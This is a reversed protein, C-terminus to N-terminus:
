PAGALLARKLDPDVPRHGLWIRLLARYLEQGPVAKGVPQGNMIVQSGKDPLYDLAVTDGKKAIKLPKMVAALAEAAGKVRALEAESTNDRIGEHLAEILAEATVDRMFTLSIRRTGTLAMVTEPVTTHEPTYLGLIYVSVMFKQRLGAGNLVLHHGGVRTERDIRMGAIEAGESSSSFVSFLLLAAFAAASTGSGRSSPRRPVAVNPSPMNNNIPIAPLWTM